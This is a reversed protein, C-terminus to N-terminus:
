YVNCVYPNIQSGSQSTERTALYVYHLIDELYQLNERRQPLSAESIASRDGNIETILWNNILDITYNKQVLRSEVLNRKTRSKIVAWFRNAVQHLRTEYDLVDSGASVLAEFSM